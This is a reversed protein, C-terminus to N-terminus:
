RTGEVEFLEPFSFTLIKNGTNVAMVTKNKADVALNGGAMNHAITWRPPADGSDHVSWAGIFSRSQSPDDTFGNGFDFVRGLSPAGAAPGGARNFRSSAVFFSTGPVVHPRGLAANGSKPGGTITRLPKVNGNATRSFVLLASPGGRMGTIFLLDHVPDVTVMLAGGVHGFPGLGTDPGVLKRIPPVNGNAARDYVLISAGEETTVPVFIENHIPDLDMQDPNVLGTRSGQIIRIPAAEGNADGRFTLIAHSMSNPVVIEDHVEDYNIAHMTRALLTGQGEIRRVTQANGNALRAFAAIQPHAV